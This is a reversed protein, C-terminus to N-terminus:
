RNSGSVGRVRCFCPDSSAGRLLFASLTSFASVFVRFIRFIRIVPKLTVPKTAHIVKTHLASRVWSFYILMVCALSASGTRKSLSPSIIVVPPLVMQVVHISLAPVPRPMLHCIGDLGLIDNCHM